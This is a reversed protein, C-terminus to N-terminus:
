PNDLGQVWRHVGPPAHCVERLRILKRSDANCFCVIVFPSPLPNLPPPTPVPVHRDLHMQLFVRICFIFTWM